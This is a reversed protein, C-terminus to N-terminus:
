SGAACRIITGVCCHIRVTDVADGRVKPPDATASRLELDLLGVNLITNGAEATDPIIPIDQRCRHTRETQSLFDFTACARSHELYQARGLWVLYRLDHFQKGCNKSREVILLHLCQRILQFFRCRVVIEM